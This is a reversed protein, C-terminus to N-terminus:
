SLTQNKKLVIKFEHWEADFGPYKIYVHDVSLVQNRDIKIYTEEFVERIIAEVLGEDKEVKGAPLQWTNPFKKNGQRQLLLIEGDVEIYCGVVDNEKNFDDPKEKYIM